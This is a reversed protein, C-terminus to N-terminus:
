AAMAALFEPLIKAGKRMNDAGWIPRINSYHFCVLQQQPDTLDFSACPLKHDLHWEKRNEWNMGPLFHVEIHARFYEGSCGILELSAKARKAGQAFLAKRMRSRLRGTIAFEIDEIRRLRM